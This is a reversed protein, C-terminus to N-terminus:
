DSNGEKPHRDTSENSEELEEIKIMLEFKARVKEDAVDLVTVDGKTGRVFYPPIAKPNKRSDYFVTNKQEVLMFFTVVDIEDPVLSLDVCLIGREQEKTKKAM